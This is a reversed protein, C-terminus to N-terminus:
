KLWLLPNESKGQNRIEFYVQWDQDPGSTGLIKGAPIKEGEKVVM